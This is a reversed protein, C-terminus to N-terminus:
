GSTAGFATASNATDEGIRDPGDNTGNRRPLAQLWSKIAESDFERERTLVSAMERLLHRHPYLLARACDEAHDLREQLRKREESTLRAFDPPGFWANGHIGLGLEYDMSLALQAAQALDSAASGGAGASVSGFVLREAARGALHIYMQRDFDAELGACPPATRETLGGTPSLCVRKIEEGYLWASIVHGCEHVAIRLDLQRRYGQEQGLVQALFGPEFCRGQRRARARAERIRADIVAPTQGALKRSLPRLDSGSDPFALELMTQIQQRTPLPMEHHLDFRGPRLIAPDIKGPFNTAGILLVGEEQHLLDIQRLFENIVQQRYAQNRDGTDTRCGSSDIEDIFLVCPKRSKANQFCALMAALMDGLHGRAQWAGFSGQILPVGASAAIAKALVTKGTGPEGYVLLSRSMASWEIEGRQWSHLDAVLDAAASHAPSTGNIDELSLGHVGGAHRRPRSVAAALREAASRADPARLALLVDPDGLGALASDDPLVPGVTERDIKGTASHSHELQTILIDRSLPELKVPDPLVTSLNDPLSEGDPLLVLLPCPLQLAECLNRELRYLDGTRSTGTSTTVQLVRLTQEHHREDGLTTVKWAEPLFGYRCAALIQDADATRFGSLVTVAGPALLTELVNRSSIFTVALRLAILSRSAPLVSAPRSRGQDDLAWGDIGSERLQDLEESARHQSGPLDKLANLLKSKPHDPTAGTRKDAANIQDSIMRRLVHKAFSIWAPNPSHLPFQPM